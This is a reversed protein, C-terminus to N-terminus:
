GRIEFGGVDCWVAVSWWSCVRLLGDLGPGGEAFHDLGVGAEDGEDGGEGGGRVGGEEEVFEGVDEFVAVVVGAGGGEGAGGVAGDGKGCGAGEVRAVQRQYVVEEVGGAGDEADLGWVSFIDIGGVSGRASAAQALRRFPARALVAAALRPGKQDIEEILAPRQLHNIM